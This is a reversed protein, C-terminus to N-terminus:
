KIVDNVCDIKNKLNGTANRVNDLVDPLTTLALDIKL